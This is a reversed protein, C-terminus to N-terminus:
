NLPKKFEKLMPFQFYHGGIEEARTSTCNRLASTVKLQHPENYFTTKHNSIKINKSKSTYNSIVRQFM